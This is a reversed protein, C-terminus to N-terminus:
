QHGVRPGAHLAAVLRHRHPDVGVLEAMGTSPDVPSWEFGMSQHLERRVTAQYIIGVARAEHYRATGDISVIQGDGRDGVVGGAVPHGDAYCPTL